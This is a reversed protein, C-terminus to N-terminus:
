RSGERSRRIFALVARIPVGTPCVLEKHALSEDPIWSLSPVALYLEPMSRASALVIQMTGPYAGGSSLVAPADGENCLGCAICRSAAPLLARDVPSLPTLRDPAYYGRLRALGGHPALKWLLTVLLAWALLVFAHLRGLLM